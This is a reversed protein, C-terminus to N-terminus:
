NEHEYDEDNVHVFRQKQPDFYRCFATRRVIPTGTEQEFRLDQYEFWGMVYRHPREDITQPQGPLTILDEYFPIPVPFAQGPLLPASFRGINGNKGEYPREMPLCSKATNYVMVLGDTIYAPYGGNNVLYLQGVDETGIAMERMTPWTKTVRKIVINRVSLRPRYAALHAQRAIEKQKEIADTQMSMLKAQFESTQAAKGMIRSQRWLILSQIILVIVNLAAILIGFRQIFTESM